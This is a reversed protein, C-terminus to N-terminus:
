KIKWITWNIQAKLDNISILM